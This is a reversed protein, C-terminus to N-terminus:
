GAPLGRRDLPKETAQGDPGEKRVGALHLMSYLLMSAHGSSLVYRDRNPWSPLAPDFKLQNAWLEYTVPAMAMAAGPHGSGAAEVGDMSLTRITNIALQSVTQNSLQEPAGSM